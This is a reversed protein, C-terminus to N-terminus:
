KAVEQLASALANALRTQEAQRCLLWERSLIRHVRPVSRLVLRRRWIERNWAEALLPDAPADCEVALLLGGGDPRPVALDIGFADHSDARVPPHGLATLAAAVSRVFGDPPPRRSASSGAGSRVQALLRHAQSPDNTSWAEAQALYLQLFDRPQSPSAGNRLVEAIQATPLSTVLTIRQRARTVAVNLRREGGAQGLAGFLRRFVGRRNRGFTTSFVIHDREDGQVNEVNKVFFGVDQGDEVRALEREYAARFEVNAEARRELLAEILDAQQRNFTVVGVTPTTAAQAGSSRWLNELLDVVRVAEPENRRDEYVGDVRLVALPQNRALAEAAHQVPVHLHGGYFAQNSFEILPRYQSRYHVQLQVTPLISKGLTLLNACAALDRRQWLLDDPEPSVPPQDGDDDDDRSAFFSTPPLQHEDGSVVVRKARFLAPLAYEVPMQSAEDFVVVDFLAKRLPLLRSAVDPSLLWVPRLELLGMDLTADVFERLRLARSGTLRSVDHWRRQDALRSPDISAPLTSATLHQLETRCQALGSVLGAHEAATMALAPTRRELQAVWGLRGERRILRAVLHPLTSAETDAPLVRRLCALTPLAEPPLQGMQSRFQQHVQLRPLAGELQWVAAMPPQHRRIREVQAELWDAELWAEARAAAELSDQTTRALDLTQTVRDLLSQWATPTGLAALALADVVCGSAEVVRWLRAVAALRPQVLGIQCQLETLQAGVLPTLGLALQVAGLRDRLRRLCHVHVVAAQLTPLVADSALPHITQLLAVCQRRASRGLGLWAHWWPRARCAEQAQVLWSDLEVQGMAELKALLAVDVVAGAQENLASQVAALEALLADGTAPGQRGGAEDAFLPLWRAADTCADPKLAALNARHTQLWLALGPLADRHPPATLLAEPRALMKDRGRELLFWKRLDDVCRGQEGADGVPHRLVALPSDEYQSQWWPVAVEACATALADIAPVSSTVLTTRLDPADPLLGAEALVILEALVQRLTGGMEPNAAHLASHQDDLRAALRAAQERLVTLQAEVVAPGRADRAVREVQDRIETLAGRRDKSLNAVMLVRDALGERKLRRYVVDLAAQKQCVLLLSSKRAIADAVLHVITQSKGTGPPGELVLGRGHRAEVVAADQTPDSDATAIFGSPQAPAAPEVDAVDLLSALSSGTPPLAQLQRLEEVVAQGAFSVHCLVAAAHLEIAAVPDPQTPVPALSWGAIREVLPAWSDLVSAPTVPLQLLRDRATQWRELQDPALLGHLAPNLRVEERDRDFGIQVRGRRGVEAQLAVPWLLVPVLRPGGEDHPSPLAVLPFALYLGDVGTERRHLATQRVLERLREERRPDAELVVPDLWTRAESRELVLELLQRAPARPSDLETLDIRSSRPGVTMRALVGRAISRSVRQEFHRLVDAVYDQKPPRQWASTPVALLVLLRALGTRRDIRFEDLWRDPLDRGSRAFAATREALEALLVRRGMRLQGRAVQPDFEPVAATAALEAAAQLLEDVPTFQDRVAALLLLLDDDRLSTRAMCAALGPHDSDPLLLRQTDWADVLLQRTACVAYRRFVAEDLEVGLATARRRADLQRQKLPALWAGLEWEALLDPAPGDLLAFGATPHHLLWAPSVIEGALVLPLDPNLLKLALGHRVDDDLDERRCLGRLAAMARDPVAVGALWALLRGHLLHGRAEQWHLASAAALVYDSLRRYPHGGLTLGAESDAEGDGAGAPLAVAEGALFSLVETTQWRQERDRALLGRLLTRLDAPLENPLPPERGILQLLFAADAVGEFCAGGTALELLTVGLSWWDSAPSAVGALWEPAMYRSVTAPAAGDLMQLLPRAACWRTLAFDVFSGDRVLIADPNIELHLLGAAHMERLATALARALGRWAAENRGEALRQRLPTWGAAACVEFARGNQWGRDLIAAAHPGLATLRGAVAPEPAIGTPYLHLLADDDVRWVAGGGVPASLLTLLQWRGIREGAAPRHADVAGLATAADVQTPQAPAGWDVESGCVECSLDGPRVAHGLRCRWSPEEGPSLANATPVVELAPSVSVAAPEAVLPPPPWTGAAPVGTLDWGCIAGDVEALCFVEAAPRSQACSPCTKVSM